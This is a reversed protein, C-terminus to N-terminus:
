KKPTAVDADTLTEGNIVKQALMAAHDVMYQHPHMVYSRHGPASYTKESGGEGTVAFSKINWQAMDDLQMKVLASVDEAPVNTRFMGEMGSLIASYNTIITTGSTIKNIVAKVVQMQNKGRGNDGGKVHYRERAFALAEHGDLNNKGKVIQVERKEGCTFTQTSEVTIGGVADVLTEVGSFNIRAYYNVNVGYLDALIQMSNEEGYLGCNTLKDKKGKGAPNNVYYDRPTNILLIQKTTPNIVALINVDSRSRKLTKSRGDSGGLYVAFTENTINAPPETPETPPETPLETVGLEAMPFSHLVRIKDFLDAYAEEDESLVILAASNIMIADANGGLLEDVLQQTSDCLIHAVEGGTQEQILALAQATEEEDYEAIYGFIYDATDALTKAQDDTRVFVCLSNEDVDQPAASTVVELTKTADLVAKAAMLCGCLIVAVLVLGIIRRVLSVPKKGRLFLIGATLLLLVAMVAYLAIVYRNPLIDLRMVFATLLVEAVAQFLLAIGSIWNWIKNKNM